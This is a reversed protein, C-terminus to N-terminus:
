GASRRACCDPTSASRPPTGLEGDLADLTASISFLPNRVEHAVGAVLSGLAEMVKAHRLQEQVAKIETADRFTLIRWTPNAEDRAWLSGLLYFWRGGAAEHAQTVLSTGREGVRRHLSLVSQWPERDRDRRAEARAARVDRRPGGAGRAQRNLRIIRGEPDAIVIGLDLADFTERWQEAALKLDAELRRQREQAEVRQSIDRVATVRLARGGACPARARVEVPFLSGDARRAQHPYAEESAAM